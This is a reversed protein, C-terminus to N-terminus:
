VVSPLSDQAPSITAHLEHGQEDVGVVEDVPGASAASEARHEAAPGPRKFICILDDGLVTVLEWGDEGARDLMPQLADTDETKLALYSWTSTM